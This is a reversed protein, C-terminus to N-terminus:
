ERESERRREGILDDVVDRPRDEGYLEDVWELLAGPSLAPEDPSCADALIRRAEEEMSHGAKAARVRLRAHVDDPLDRVTLRAM